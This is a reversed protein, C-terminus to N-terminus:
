PTYYIGYNGQQDCQGHLEMDSIAFPVRKKIDKPVALGILELEDDDMVPCDSEKYLNFLCKDCNNGRSQLYVKKM